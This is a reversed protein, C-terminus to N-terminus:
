PLSLLFVASSCALACNLRRMPAVVTTPAAMFRAPGVAASFFSFCNASSKSLHRSTSGWFRTVEASAQSNSTKLTTSSGGM